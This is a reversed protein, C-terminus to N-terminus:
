SKFTGRDNLLTSNANKSVCYCRPYQHHGYYADGTSRFWLCYWWSHACRIAICKIFVWFKEDAEQGSIGLLSFVMSQMKPDHIRISGGGVEYGNIVMDYARSLCETPAAKLAEADDTQPATFPHHLADLKGNNEEFMPFDVVWVPAWPKSYLKLDEAIKVRLAGMSDNVISAKGAGFFIIDGNQSGTIELIHLLGDESLNKLLPRSCDQKAKHSTM